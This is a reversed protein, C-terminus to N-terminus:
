ATRFMRVARVGLAICAVLAVGQTIAFPPESQTPALDRMVPVKLFLQVILVFVNFYLAVLSTVVFTTRWAGALGRVYRAVVAVALLVLSLAAIIHSPLIEDTAFGFATVNTAITTVLFLAISGDLRKGALMGGAMMFGAFLGALSLATHILTFTGM